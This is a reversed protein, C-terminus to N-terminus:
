ALPKRTVPRAKWLGDLFDQAHRVRDVREPPRRSDYAIGRAVDFGGTVHDFRTVKDDQRELRRIEIIRHEPLGLREIDRAVLRRVQCEAIASMVTNTRRERPELQLRKERDDETSEGRQSQGYRELRNLHPFTGQCPTDRFTGAGS